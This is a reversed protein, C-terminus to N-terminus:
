MDLIGDLNITTLPSAYHPKTWWLEDVRIYVAVRYDDLAIGTVNGELDENNLNPYEPVYIFNITLDNTTLPNNFESSLIIRNRSIRIRQKSNYIFDFHKEITM